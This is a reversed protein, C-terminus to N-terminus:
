IPRALRQRLLEFGVVSAAVAANLSEVGGEMPVSVWETILAGVEPSVGETENGLVWVEGGGRPPGFLSVADHARLGVLRYGAALLARAAGLAEDCTWLPARLAVGASAKIALPNLPACGRRPLVVGRAGAACLGRLALGLNAPTQVGDILFIPAAARGGALAAAREAAGGGREALAALAEDLPRLHPAQVDLAVGQDQKGNKSIRSLELASMREIPVGVAEAARTIESILEGEVRYALFLRQPTVLPDTLAEYVPKRGFLTVRGGRTFPNNASPAPDRPPHAREEHRDHHLQPARDHQPARAGRRPAGAPAETAWPDRRPRGHPPQPRAPRPAPSKSM